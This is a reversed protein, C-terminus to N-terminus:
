RGEMAEYQFPIWIWGFGGMINKRLSIQISHPKHIYIYLYIWVSEANVQFDPFYM